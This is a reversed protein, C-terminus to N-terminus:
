SGSLSGGLFDRVVAGVMAPRERVLLHSGPLVGLRAGPISTAILETHELRISDHDGAMVLVPTRVGALSEPTIQPQETWMTMLRAVVDDTRSPDPSLEAYERDILASQEAPMARAHHEEAVWIDDGPRINASIAVLSRVRDPHDRALLLGIIAGDSFGVVDVADLGMADLYALTDAVGDDYSFPGPRDPTRGHAPREPAHVTRGVLEDALPRMVAASCFGGHLFLVVPGDGSVEHHTPVGRVDVVPVPRHDRM